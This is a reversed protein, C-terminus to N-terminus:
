GAPRGTNLANGFAEIIRKAGAHYTCVDDFSVQVYGGHASKNRNEVINRYWNLDDKKVNRRFVEVCGGGFKKLIDRLSDPHISAHRELTSMVYLALGEDGSKKAREAVIRKIENEYHGCIHVLVFRTLQSEIITLRTGTRELHGAWM